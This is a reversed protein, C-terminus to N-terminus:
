FAISPVDIKQFALLIARMFQHCRPIFDANPQLKQELDAYPKLFLDMQHCVDGISKYDFAAASGSIKHVEMRLEILQETDYHNALSKILNSINEIKGLLNLRYKELREESPRYDCVDSKDTRRLSRFVSDMEEFSLDAPLIYDFGFEEKSSLITALSFIEHTFFSVQCSPHYERLIKLKKKLDDCTFMGQEFSAADPNQDPEEVIVDGFQPVVSAFLEQLYHDKVFILYKM